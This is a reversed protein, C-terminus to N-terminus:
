LFQFDDVSVGNLSVVQLDDLLTVSPSTGGFPIGSEITSVVVEDLVGVFPDMVGNFQQTNSGDTITVVWNGADDVSMEVGLTEGASLSFSLDGSFIFEDDSENEYQFNTDGSFRFLNFTLTTDTYDSQAIEIGLGSGPIMLKEVGSVLVESSQSDALGVFQRIRANADTQLTFSLAFGEFSVDEPLEHTMYLQQYSASHAPLTGDSNFQLALQGDSISLSSSGSYLPNSPDGEQVEVWGNGVSASDSRNFDDTFIVEPQPVGEGQIVVTVSASASVFGHSDAIRYSFEFTESESSMLDEFISPDVLTIEGTAAVSFEVIRGSSSIATLVSSASLAEGNVEFVSIADGNRDFDSGSGNDQLVNGILATGESQTIFDNNATPAQGPPSVKVKLKPASAM